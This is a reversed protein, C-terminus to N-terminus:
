HRTIGQIAHVIEDASAGPELVAEVADAIAHAGSSSLRPAKSPRASPQAPPEQQVLLEPQAKRKPIRAASKCPCPIGTKQRPLMKGTRVAASYAYEGAMYKAANIRDRQLPLCYM